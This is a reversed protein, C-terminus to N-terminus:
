QAGNLPAPKEDSKQTDAAKNGTPPLNPIPQINSETEPKVAPTTRQYLMGPLANSRIQKGFSEKNVPEAQAVKKTPVSKSFLLGPATGNKIQSTISENTKFQTQAKTAIATLAILVIILYCKM